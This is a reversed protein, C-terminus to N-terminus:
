PIYYHYAQDNALSIITLQINQIQIPTTYLSILLFPNQSRFNPDINRDPVNVLATIYIISNHSLMIAPYKIPSVPTAAILAIVGTVPITVNKPSRTEVPTPITKVLSIPAIRFCLASSIYPCPKIILMDIPSIDASVM